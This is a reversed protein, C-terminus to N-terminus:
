GVFKVIEKSVQNKRHNLQSLEAGILTWNGHHFIFNFYLNEMLKLIVSDMPNGHPVHIFVIWPPKLKNSLTM